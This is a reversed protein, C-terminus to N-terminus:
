AALLPIKLRYAAEAPSQAETKHCIRRIHTRLTSESIKLDECIQKHGKGRELLHLVHREMPSLRPLLEERKRHWLLVVRAVQHALPNKGAHALFVQAVLEQRSTGFKVLYGDTGAGLASLIDKESESNSLIVVKMLPWKKKIGKLADIGSIGGVLNLDLLVVDPGLNALQPEADEYSSFQGVCQIKECQALQAALCDLEAQDDDVLVVRIRDSM